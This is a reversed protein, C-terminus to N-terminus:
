RNSLVTYRDDRYLESWGDLILLESLPDTVRLLAEDIRYDDLLGRWDGQGNRTEIFRGILSGYLEARDDIFVRREPFRSYILFGGVSDDHFVRDATLFAAAEVGFHDGDLTPTRAVFFPLGIITITLMANLLLSRGGIRSYRPEPLEAATLSFAPAFALWAMPVSRTSSAGLYAFPVLIWLVSASLSGRRAPIILLILGLLLPLSGISALNTPAWETILSLAGRNAFFQILVDIVGWGHATLLMAGLSVGAVGFLRRSRTMIVQLVLYGLGIAWSGHSSAWIWFVLPMTWSLRKEEVALIILGFLLLSFLAPRPNLYGALVVASVIVYFGRWTVAPIRRSAILLLIGATLTGTVAVLVWVFSLDFWSELKGYLLDPLWSQTRWPRGLATFSFPDSTLVSGQQIQLAGARIHWLFSNDRIPSRAVIGVVV